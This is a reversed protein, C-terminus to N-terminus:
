YFWSKHYQWDNVGTIGYNQNPTLFNTSQYTYASEADNQHLHAAEWPCGAIENSAVSAIWAALYYNNYTGPIYFWSSGTTETHTYDVRGLDAGLLNVPRARVNKCTANETWVSVSGTTSYSGTDSRYGWSRWYVSSGGAGGGYRGWDLARGPPIPNLDCRSHWSCTLYGYAGGSNIRVAFVVTTARATPLFYSVMGSGLIVMMLCTSLLWRYRM